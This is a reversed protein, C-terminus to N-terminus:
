TAYSGAQQYADNERWRCFDGINRQDRLNVAWPDEVRPLPTRSHSCRHSWTKAGIPLDHPAFWCRMGTNQLEGHLRHAFADDKSSYCHPRRLSGLAPTQTMTARSIGHPQLQARKGVVEGVEDPYQRQQTTRWPRYTM